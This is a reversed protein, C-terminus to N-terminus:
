LAMPISGDWVNVLPLPRGMCMKSSRSGTFSNIQCSVAQPKANTERLVRQAALPLALGPGREPRTQNDGM